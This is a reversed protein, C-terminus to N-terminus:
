DKEAADFDGFGSSSSDAITATGGEAGGVTEEQDLQRLSKSSGSSGNFKVKLKKSEFCFFLCFGFGVVPDYRSISVLGSYLSRKVLEYKSANSFLDKKSDSSNELTTLNMGSLSMLVIVKDNNALVFTLSNYQVIGTLSFYQISM